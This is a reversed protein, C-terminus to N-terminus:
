RSPSSSRRCAHLGRGQRRAHRQDAHGEAQRRRRHRRGQNGAREDPTKGQLLLLHGLREPTDRRSTTCADLGGEAHGLDRPVDHHPRRVPRRADELRVGRGAGHRRGDGRRRRRDRPRAGRVAARGAVPVYAVIADLLPQIGINATASTCVLPFIRGAASAASAPGRGAGGADAHRGRLVEGDARRRSRRGDRHAGRARSRRPELPPRSRRGRDVQRQRRDRVDLAKMAVLDVVGPFDKEEGIPLRSRSSRAASSRACRSSRAARPQRARPGPPQARRPAAADLGRRRHGCRRPRLGRRRGGRRRRRAGRGVVRLAARADSLFNAIGPTDIFNIKTSTGSPTPLAPPSPTSAPSKKKTTTPSPPATTSAASGTSPAPTSSCPPSLQTKGAGSHGVLAVNRLSQADYVKM